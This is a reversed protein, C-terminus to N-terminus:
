FYDRRRMLAEEEAEKLKKMEKIDLIDDYRLNKYYFKICQIFGNKKNYRWIDDPIENIDNFIVFKKDKFNLEKLKYSNYDDIYKNNITHNNLPIIISEKESFCKNLFNILKNIKERRKEDIEPECKLDWQMNNFDLWITGVEKKEMINYENLSIFHIKNDNITPLNSSEITMNDISIEDNTLYNLVIIGNLLSSSFKKINKFYFFKYNEFISIDKKREQENNLDKSLTNKVEKKFKKWNKKNDFNEKGIKLQKKIKSTEKWIKIPNFLSIKDIIEDLQKKYKEFKEKEIIYIENLTKKYENLKESDKTGYKWVIVSISNKYFDFNIEMKRIKKRIKKLKYESVFCCYRLRIWSVTMLIIYM